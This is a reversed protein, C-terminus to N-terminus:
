PKIGPLIDRRPSRTNTAAQHIIDPLVSYRPLSSLSLHIIQPHPISKSTTKTSRFVTIEDGNRREEVYHNGGPLVRRNRFSTSSLLHTTMM